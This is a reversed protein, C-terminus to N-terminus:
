DPTLELWEHGQVSLDPAFHVVMPVGSPIELQELAEASLGELHMVLGRLTNGHSVV